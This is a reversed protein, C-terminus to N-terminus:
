KAKFPGLVAIYIPQLRQTCHPAFTVMVVVEKRIEQDDQSEQFAYYDRAANFAADKVNLCITICLHQFV